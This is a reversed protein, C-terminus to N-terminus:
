PVKHELIVLFVRIVQSEGRGQLAQLVLYARFAQLVQLVKNEEKVQQDMPVLLVLLALKVMKVLHGERGQSVLMEQKELNELIGVVAKQGLSVWAVQSAELELQVQQAQGVM